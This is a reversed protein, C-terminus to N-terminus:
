TSSCVNAYTDLTRAAAREASFHERALSRMTRGREARLQPDATLRDLEVAYLTSDDTKVLAARDNGVAEALGPVDSALVPVAAMMFEIVALGLGEASSPQTGIDSGDIILDRCANTVDELMYAGNMNVAAVEGRLQRLYDQDISNESGTFVIVARDHLEMRAYAALLRRHQKRETFRGILTIMVKNPDIGFLEYLKRRAAHKTAHKRDAVGMYVLRIKEKPIGFSGAQRAFFHSGVLYASAPCSSLIFRTRNEGLPDSHPNTEHFSAVVPIRSALGSIHSLLLAVQTHCHIIDFDGPVILEAVDTLLSFYAREWPVYKAYGTGDLLGSTRVITLDGESVQVAQDPSDRNTLVVVRHGRRAIERSLVSVYTELGGTRPAFSPSIMLVNM